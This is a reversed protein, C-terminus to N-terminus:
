VTLSYMKLITHNRCDICPLSAHERTILQFVHRELVKSLISLLSIPRYNDPSKAAPTKPIAVIRSTKWCHPVRGLKLSLNFLMTVAPAISFATYKLMRASIGDPGNSKTVDLSSLLDAIEDEGCSLDSPFDESPTPTRFDMSEIPSQSMNFCSAFFSNLMEAKQVDTQATTDGHVLTPITSNTSNLLKCVKWFQRPCKPNLKQFYTKKAQRLYGVVKNRYSQYKSYNGTTKARKFLANRRKIAQILKKTLWPRNRKPPLTAKPICEEMITLFANKWNSWSRDVDSHDLLSMWDTAEILECAKDWDALGYRWVIRAKTKIPISSKLQLRALVGLHDSNALAPITLCNRILRPNSIFLLDITSSTGNHHVHTYDSVVQSLSYTSMVTSLKHYLPHSSTSMDINFDGVVVINAFQTIDITEFYTCLEDLVSTPSSPPRYFVSVCIRTPIMNHQIVVSLLELAGNPRPLITHQFIDKVYLLVGGGHRHRDLRNSHYGPISVETDDIDEELWTEVICIVDPSYM